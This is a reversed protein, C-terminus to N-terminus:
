EETQTTPDEPGLGSLTMMKKILKSSVGLPMEVLTAIDAEDTADFAPELLSIALMLIDIAEPDKSDYKGTVPNAEDEYGVEDRAWKFDGRTIAIMKYTLGAVTVDDVPETISRVQEKTAYAM